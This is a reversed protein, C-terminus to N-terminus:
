QPIEAKISKGSVHETATVTLKKDLGVFFTIEVRTNEDAQDLELVMEALLKSPRYLPTEEVHQEEAEEDEDQEDEDEEEEKPPVPEGEAVAVYARKQGAPLAV